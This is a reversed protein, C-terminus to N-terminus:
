SFVILKIIIDDTMRAALNKISIGIEDHPFSIRKELFVIKPDLVGAIEKAYEDM